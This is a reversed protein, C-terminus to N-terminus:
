LGPAPPKEVSNAKVFKESIEGEKFPFAVFKSGDAENFLQGKIQNELRAARHKIVNEIIRNVLAPYADSNRHQELNFLENKIRTFYGKDIGFHDKMDASYEKDFRPMDFIERHYHFKGPIMSEFAIEYEFKYLHSISIKGQAILDLIHIGNEKVYEPDMAFVDTFGLRPHKPKGTSRRYHPDLRRKSFKQRDTRIGSAYPMSRRAAYSTSALPTYKTEAGFDKVIDGRNFLNNYNMVYAQIFRYFLNVFEKKNRSTKRKENKDESERLKQFFLKTQAHAHQFETSTEDVEEGPKIGAAKLTAMSAVTKGVSTDQCLERREPQGFMSPCFHEGRYLVMRLQQNPDVDDMKEDNNQASVLKKRKKDYKKPDIAVDEMEDTTKMEEDDSSEASSTDEQDLILAKVKKTNVPRELLTDLIRPEERGPKYQLFEKVGEGASDFDEQSVRGGYRIATKFIELYDKRAMYSMVDEEKLSCLGSSILKEFDHTKYKGHAALVDILKKRHQPPIFAFLSMKQKASSAVKVILDFNNITLATLLLESIDLSAAVSSALKHDKGRIAAIFIKKKDDEQINGVFDAIDEEDIFSFLLQIIKLFKPSDELFNGLATELIANINSGDQELYYKLVSLKADCVALLRAEEYDGSDSSNSFLVDLMDVDDAKVAVIAARSIDPTPYHYLFIFRALELDSREAALVVLAEALENSLSAGAETLPRAVAFDSRSLYHYLVLAVAPGENLSVVLRYDIDEEGDIEAIIANAEREIRQNFM